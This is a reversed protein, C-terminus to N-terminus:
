KEGLVSLRERANQIFPEYKKNNMASELFVSYHTRALRYDGLGEQLSALNYYTLAYGPNLQLAVNYSEFARSIDGAKKYANGLNNYTSPDEPARRLSEQYSKIALEFRGLDYYALGISSYVDASEPQHRLALQYERIAWDSRNIRSYIKGLDLYLQYDTPRLQIERQYKRIATEIFAHEMVNKTIEPDIRTAEQFEGQALNARGAMEYAVTLYLHSFYSSPSKKVSDSWLKVDDQWITNRHLTGAAYCSILGIFLLAMSTRIPRGFRRLKKLTVIRFLYSIGVGMLIVIGVAPLYGRHEQFIALKTMFPLILVPLLTILFWGVWFVAMKYVRHLWFALLVLSLVIGVSALVPGEFFSTYLPMGHEVNLSVPVLVLELYKAVMVPATLVGKYLGSGAGRDGTLSLLDDIPVKHIMLFLVAALLFPLQFALQYVISRFRKLRFSPQCYLNFLILVAPLTIAIEKTLVGLIFTALSGFYLLIQKRKWLPDSSQCYLIYFYFSLIFFFASLVSSRASIYNISESNFPHVAFIISSSLAALADGMLSRVIFYILLCVGIHLALNVFHYGWPEHRGFYFNLAYSAQLIPRYATEDKAVEFLSSMSTSFFFTPVNRIDQLSLNLVISHFDDYHFPNDLANYYVLATLGVILWLAM